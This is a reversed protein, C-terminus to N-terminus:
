THTSANSDGEYQHRSFPQLLTDRNVKEVPRDLQANVICDRQNATLSPTDYVFVASPNVIVAIGYGNPSPLTIILLRRVCPAVNRMYWGLLPVAYTLFVLASWGTNKLAVNLNVM